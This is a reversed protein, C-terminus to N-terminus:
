SHSRTLEPPAGLGIAPRASPVLYALGLIVWTAGWVMQLAAPPGDNGPGAIAPILMGVIFFSGVLLPAFRQWGTWVGARAVAIGTMTGAVAILLGGLPFLPSEDSRALLISFTGLILLVVGTEFARWSWRGFRESGVARSWSLGHVGLLLGVFALGALVQVVYYGTGDSTHYASLAWQVVIATGWLLGGGIAGLGAIRLRNDM